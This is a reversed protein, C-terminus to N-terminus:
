SIHGWRKRNKILTVAERTVGYSEAIERHTGPAKRIELIKDKTLKSMGHNEGRNDPIKNRGKKERDDINDQHTGIWLHAPNVCSRVDCRHCVHLGKPIEGKHIEYSIRHAGKTRMKGNEPIGINGYGDSNTSDTWLWCGSETVPIYKDEFRERLSPKM